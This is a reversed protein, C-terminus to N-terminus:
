DECTAFTAVGMANTLHLCSKVNAAAVVVHSQGHNVKSSVLEHWPRLKREFDPHAQSHRYRSKRRILGGEVLYKRLQLRCSSMLYLSSDRHGGKSAIAIDSAHM